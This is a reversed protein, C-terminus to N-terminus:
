YEKNKWMKMKVGFIKSFDERFKDLFKQNKNCYGTIATFKRDKERTKWICVFGDRCLHAHIRALEPSINM